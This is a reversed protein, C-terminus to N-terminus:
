NPARVAIQISPGLCQMAFPSPFCSGHNGTRSAADRTASHTGGLCIPAVCPLVFEPEAVPSATDAVSIRRACATISNGPKRDPISCTVFETQFCAYDSSLLSRCTTDKVKSFLVDTLEPPLDQVCGASAPREGHMLICLSTLQRKWWVARKSRFLTRWNASTAREIM